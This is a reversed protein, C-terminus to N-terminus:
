RNAGNLEALLAVILAIPVNENFNVQARNAVYLPDNTGANEKSFHGLSRCLM